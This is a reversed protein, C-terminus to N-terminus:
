CHLWNPARSRYYVDIMFVNKKGKKLKISM